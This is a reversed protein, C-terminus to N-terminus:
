EIVVLRHDDQIKVKHQVEFLYDDYHGDQNKMLNDNHLRRFALAENLMAYKYGIQVSRQYWEKFEGITISEDFYGIREFVAKEILLTNVHYGLLPGDFKGEKFNRMLSYVIPMQSLYPVQRSLKDYSWLDDADLFALYDGTAHRIGVNRASAAGLHATRIVSAGLAKAIAASADSSGDDVVLLEHVPYNQQKVSRIAESLYKAGNYVPIVVSIKVTQKM